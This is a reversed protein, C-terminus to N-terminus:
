SNSEAGPSHGQLHRDLRALTDAHLSRLARPAFTREFCGGVGGAGQWRTELRVHSGSDRPEVTWVNTLSSDTDAERVVRGPVPETVRMHYDRERRGTNLHYSFATGDGMGGDTVRYNSYAPPLWTGHQNRYDVISRYVQDAPADLMREVTAMVEAM